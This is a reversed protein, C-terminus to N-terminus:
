EEPTVEHIMRMKIDYGTAVIVSHMHGFKATISDVAAKISTPDAVDLQVLEVEIGEKRAEEAAAEAGARNNRYTIAVNTGAAAFRQAIVQGTGGSGGIVLAVGNPFDKEAKSAMM